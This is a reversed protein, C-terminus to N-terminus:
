LHCVYAVPTRFPPILTDTNAHHTVLPQYLDLLHVREEKLDRVRGFCNIGAGRLHAGLAIYTLKMDDSFVDPDWQLCIM